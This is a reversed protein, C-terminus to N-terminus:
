LGLDSVLAPRARHERLIDRVKRFTAEDVVLLRVGEAVGKRPPRFFTVATATQAALVELLAAMHPSKQLGKVAPKVAALRDLMAASGEGQGLATQITYDLAPARKKPSRKM